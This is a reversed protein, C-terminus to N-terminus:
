FSVTVSLVGCLEMCVWKAANGYGHHDGIENITVSM